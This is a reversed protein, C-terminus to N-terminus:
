NREINGYDAREVSHLYFNMDIYSFNKTDKDINKMGNRVTVNKLSINTYKIM